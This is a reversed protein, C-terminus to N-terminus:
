RRAKVREVLRGHRYTTVYSVGSRNKVKQGKWTGKKNSVSVTSQWNWIETWQGHREGNEYPGKRRGENFEEEWQGHRKGEVYPGVAIKSDESRIEWQGTREFEKVQGVDTRGTPYRVTWEGYAVWRPCGRDRADCQFQGEAVVGDPLGVAWQGIRNGQNYQGEVRGIQREDSAKINWTFESVYSWAGHKKGDVYPGKASIEGDRYEVWEGIKQDDEYQGQALMNDSEDFTTWTGQRRGDIYRGKSKIKLEESDTVTWPGHRNGGVYPGEAILEERGDFIAKVTWRGSRNGNAFLGESVHGNQETIKWRGSWQDNTYPGEALTGDPYTKTWKGNRKGGVYQGESVTGDVLIEIWSGHMQGNVFTGESVNGEADRITWNGDRKDNLYPGESINGESDRLTWAGNRRNDEMWGEEVRGDHHRVAWQGRQRGDVYPGESETGNAERVIWHGSARGDLYPGEAVTGNAYAISWHGTKKGNTHTGTAANPKPFGSWTLTGSGTALGRSCGRDWSMRGAESPPDALWVYCGMPEILEAWCSTGESAETCLPGPATALLWAQATSNGLIPQPSEAPVSSEQVALRLDPERADVLASEGADADAPVLRIRYWESGNHELWQRATRYGPASVEVHYTGHQLSMGWEYPREVNLLVIKAGRPDPVIRLPAAADTEQQALGGVITLTLLVFTAFSRTMMKM